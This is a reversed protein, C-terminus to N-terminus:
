GSGGCKNPYVAKYLNHITQVAPHTSSFHLVFTIERFASSLKCKQAEWLYQTTMRALQFTLSAENVGCCSMYGDCATSKTWTIYNGLRNHNVDVWQQNWKPITNKKWKHTENQCCLVQHLFTQTSQYTGRAWLSCVGERKSLLFHVHTLPKHLVPPKITDSKLKM